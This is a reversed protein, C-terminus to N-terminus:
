YSYSKSESFTSKLKTRVDSRHTRKDPVKEKLITEAVIGIVDSTGKLTELGYQMDVDSSPCDIVIDM